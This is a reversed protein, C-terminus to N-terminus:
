ENYTDKIRAYEIFDENLKNNDRIFSIITNNNRIITNFYEVADQWSYKTVKQNENSFSQTLKDLMNLIFYSDITHTGNTSNSCINQLKAIDSDQSSNIADLSLSSQIQWHNIEEYRNLSYKQKNEYLEYLRKEWKSIINNWHFNKLCLERTKVRNISKIPKPIHLFDYLIEVLNTNDPYARYAQTELEKFFTAIRVPTANLKSVIDQMASYPITVVPVGCAAAEVQPMGFGECISYQIYLDFTNYIDVMQERTVGSTVSPLTAIGNCSICNRKSGAYVDAFIKNCNKCMYTFFTKNLLRNEKLLSPIDWGLYDPYGTHIYLFTKNAFISQSEELRNLLLRFSKMLEPILKRKQNRMVSGFIISDTPLSLINKSIQGERMKYSIEDIGPSVTDIYRINNNTQELLIDRAWDSYTFISDAGMYTDLWSEQQPYSDVTPMVM